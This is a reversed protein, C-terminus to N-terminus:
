IVGSFCHPYTKHKPKPSYMCLQYYYCCMVSNSNKKTFQDKLSIRDLGGLYKKVREGLNIGDQHYNKQEETDRQRRHRQFGNIYIKLEKKGKDQAPIGFIEMIKGVKHQWPFM